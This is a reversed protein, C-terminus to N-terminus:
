TLEASMMQDLWAHLDREVQLLQRHADLVARLNDAMALGRGMRPFPGDLPATQAQDPTGYLDTRVLSGVCLNQM